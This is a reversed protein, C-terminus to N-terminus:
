LDQLLAPVYRQASPDSARSPTLLETLDSAACVRGETSPRHNAPLIRDATPFTGIRNRRQSPVSVDAGPQTGAPIRSTLADNM